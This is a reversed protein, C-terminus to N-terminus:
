KSLWLYPFTPHQHAPLVTFWPLYIFVPDEWLIGLIIQVLEM